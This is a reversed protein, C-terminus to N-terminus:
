LLLTSFCRDVHLKRFNFNLGASIKFATRTVHDECCILSFWSLMMM